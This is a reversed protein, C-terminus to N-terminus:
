RPLPPPFRASAREAPPRMPSMARLLVVSWGGGDRGLVQTKLGSMTGQPPANPGRIGEVTFKCDVAALDAGLFRPKECTDSFTSNKFGGSQDDTFLQAIQDRGRADRGMPNILDGTEAFFGAMAQPDHRNWADVWGQEVKSIAQEDSAQAGASAKGEMPGAWAPVALL